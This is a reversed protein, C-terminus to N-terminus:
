SWYFRRGCSISCLPEELCMLVVGEESSLAFENLLADVGGKGLPSQRIGLVLDRARDWAQSRSAPSLKAIPLLGNIVADEDKRYNASMLRRQNEFLSTTIFM